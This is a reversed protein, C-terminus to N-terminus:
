AAPRAGLLKKRAFLSKLTPLERNNSRLYLLFLGISGFLFNPGWAATIASIRNGKGLALFLNNLFIMAFFIVISTAVGALM